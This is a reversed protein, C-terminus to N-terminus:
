WISSPGAASPSDPSSRGGAVAVLMLRPSPNGLYAAAVERKTRLDNASITAANNASIGTASM